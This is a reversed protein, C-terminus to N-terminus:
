GPRALAVRRDYAERVVRVDELFYPLEDLLLAQPGDVLAQSPAPHFDILVM